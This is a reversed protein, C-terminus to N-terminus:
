FRGQLLDTKRRLYYRFNSLSIDPPVTHDVTPIFGGEEILPALARLHEDIARPGKALERKDVAGWLRLSRGYKRRLVAPDTDQAARELPWLGDIGADLLLPILPETNGDSDVIVYGVGHGKLFAVLRKMHLLIFRRYTDPSLLPGTKMAMDENLFVYDVDTEALVPRSVEITFDAVFEMMEHMLRPQDYWALSVNETGMWERARWYFGLTSCNKGLVLVHRRNKWGPLMLERWCAPYRSGVTTYRKRLERFDEPTEVPFRLYQDMSARTGHATGDKLARTVTGGANRGVVYRETEELVEPEFCPVMGYNVPIYERPDFGLADEGTFWDWGLQDRDLGEAHWRDITQGWVGVEWHPVRDVPQYEMVRIFRERNTLREPKAM